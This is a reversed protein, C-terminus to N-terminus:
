RYRALWAPESLPQEATEDRARGTLSARVADAMRGDVLSFGALLVDRPSRYDRANRLYLRAARRRRGARRLRFAVWRGFSEADVELGNGHKRILYNLDDMMDHASDGLFSNEGHLVYGVLIENSAVGRGVAALRLWMDWDQLHWLNEDFGGIRRLLDKEVMVNSCGAPISYNKRLRVALATPDTPRHEQIIRLEEDLVVSAGYVFTTGDSQVGNLQVALKEPSWLDDDDLFAVWAGRAADIGTNRARSLGLSREHRLVRLRQDDIESLRAATEDTSGDDVVIVEHDVAEQGLASPLAARALLHWRSRTPIVVSVQPADTV